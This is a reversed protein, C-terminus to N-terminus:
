PFFERVPLVRACPAGIDSQEPTAVYLFSQGPGHAHGRLRRAVRDGKPTLGGSAPDLELILLRPEGGTPVYVYHGM